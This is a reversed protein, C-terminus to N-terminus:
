GLVVNPYVDFRRQTGLPVNKRAEALVEPELTWRVIGEGEETTQVVGAWPDVVTSHGWAPYAGKEIESQSARAPSCAAVYFQNDTARARQLLEWSRPGTTTNFAGPYIMGAAGIRAAIQAPEPFRLDYCIALGFRGKSCDFVTLRDGAALTTSEKFTMKGPIDIDFLHVKRHISIAEGQENFVVSTNYLKGTSQDREPISGGVLVVGTERAVQSLMQLSESKISSVDVSAGDKGDIGWRAELAEASPSGSESTQLPKKIKEWLGDLSEAYGEFHSVGYPSNFCEPLVVLDAGGDEKAARLVAERAHSLNFSKDKSTQGLQILALRTKSLRGQPATSSSSSSSSM